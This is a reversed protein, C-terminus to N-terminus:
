RDHFLSADISDVTPDAEADLWRRVAARVIEGTSATIEDLGPVADGHVVKSRARYSRKYLLEFMTRMETATDAVFRAVRLSVRYSLEAAGDPLFLGEMAIWYDILRDASDTREYSQQFRRLAAEIRGTRGRRRLNAFTEVLVAEDIADLNLAPESHPQRDTRFVAGTGQRQYPWRHSQWQWRTHVQGHGQLRLACLADRWVQERAEYSAVMLAGGFIAEGSTPKPASVTVRLEHTWRGVDWIAFSGPHGSPWSAVLNEFFAARADDTLPLITAGDGLTISRKGGGRIGHLAGRVTTYDVPSVVYAILDAVVQEVVDDRVEITEAARLYETILIGGLNQVVAGKHVEEPLSEGTLGDVLFISALATDRQVVSFLEGFGDFATYSLTRGTVARIDLVDRPTPDYRRTHDSWALSRMETVPDVAFERRLASLASVLYYLAASRLKEM